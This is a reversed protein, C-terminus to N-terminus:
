ACSKQLLVSQRVIVGSLDNFIRPTKLVQSNLCNTISVTVTINQLNSLIAGPHIWRPKPNYSLINASFDLVASQPKKAWDDALWSSGGGRTTLTGPVPGGDVEPIGPNLKLGPPRTLRM